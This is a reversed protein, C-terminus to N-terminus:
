LRKKTIEGAKQLAIKTLIPGIIEFFICTTSIITIVTIGIYNGLEGLASFEHKVILALGIAVGAQSLIGMGLFKRLKPDSRSIMAGFTAGGLLGASRCIIYIVGILGLSPLAMIHLSSGALIFFLIFLLPMINTLEGRLKEVLSGKQTNVIVLGFIMNTLILSLHLKFCIGSLILVFAFVLLFLDRRNSMKHTLINFIFAAIIGIFISLGIQMFPLAILSWLSNLGASQGTTILSKAVASAFGFIIIGVGDDLGVVCYLTSTLIGKARNEQIVAITGAPASAPAIAGFILALALNGTILYTGLTVAIFTFLTEVVIICALSMGHHKFISFKLEMGISFAIFSLAIETIFSLSDQLTENILNAFNPGLLAGIVMFGILSPLRVYKM